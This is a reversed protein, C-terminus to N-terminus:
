TLERDPLEYYQLYNEYEERTWGLFEILSTTSDGSTHWSNILGEIRHIAEELKDNM